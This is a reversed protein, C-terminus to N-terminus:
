VVILGKRLKLLYLRIFEDQTYDIRLKNEYFVPIVKKNKKKEKRKSKYGNKYRDKNKLYFNRNIKKRYIPYCDLCYKRKSNKADPINNGCM